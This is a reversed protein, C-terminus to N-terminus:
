DEGKHSFPQVFKKPEIKKWIAQAYDHGDLMMFAIHAIDPCQSLIKTAKEKRNAEPEFNNLLEVVKLEIESFQELLNDRTSKLWVNFEDPTVELVEEFSRGEKLWRWVSRNSMKTVLSHLRVYDDFKIKCRWDFKSQDIARIVFGEKNPTNQSKFQSYTSFLEGFTSREIEVCKFRNDLPVDLATSNDLKALHILDEHDYQCVIRNTPGIYEFLYTFGNEIWDENYNAKFFISGAIAQDSYFSGRTAYIVQNNYRTVILLSGDLKETIEIPTGEDPFQDITHEEWNFFKEFGRGVIKGEQDTILGRCSLLVPYEKWKQEYQTLPTYNWITLPFEIHKSSRVWGELQLQGLTNNMSM